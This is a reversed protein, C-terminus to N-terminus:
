RTARATLGLLQREKSELAVVKLYRDVKSGDVEREEEGDNETIRVMGKELHMRVATLQNVYSKRKLRHNVAHFTYHTQIDRWGWEPAQNGEATVPAVVERKYVLAALKFLADEDMRMLNEEIFQDVKTISNCLNCGVCRVGVNPFVSSWQGRSASSQTVSDDSAVSERDFNSDDESEFVCAAGVRPRKDKRQSPRGREGSPIPRRTPAQPPAMDDDSDSLSDEDEEEQGSNATEPRSHLYTGMAEAFESVSDEESENGDVDETHEGVSGEDLEDDDDDDDGDMGLGSVNRSEDARAQMELDKFSIPAFKANPAAQKNPSKRKSPAGSGTLEGTLEGLEELRVRRPALSPSGEDDDDDM